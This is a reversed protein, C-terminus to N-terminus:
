QTPPSVDGVPFKDPGSLRTDPEGAPASKKQEENLRVFEARAQASERKRGARSYATGLAARIKPEKPLGKKAIELEPIAGLYDDVDLRLLGLMYHGFPQLPDMKVVEEAYPIGAASDLKYESAAIRMRSVVDSPNNAIEQKLQEVSATVDRLELLFLGFAYHINPYNPNEKVVAEFGPRAEDYKKQGALCEARGVRLVVDAQASGAEPPQKANMRLMAMGLANAAADSPGAQLCLQELTDQAGQFSGKRQLLIGEHYLVVQRLEPNTQLGLNVGKQIHRLAAEDRGLEFDCLGLMAYATGNEPQLTVLRQFAAAAKSYHDQDYELTALAWWGEAWNPRIALARAYLRAAEDLRNEQSAKQAKTALQSFSVGGQQQATAMAGPNMLSYALVALWVASRLACRTSICPDTRSLVITSVRMSDHIHSRHLGAVRIIM